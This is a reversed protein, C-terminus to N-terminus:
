SRVRGPCGCVAVVGAAAVATRRVPMVAAARRATTAEPLLVHFTAGSGRNNAAWMRGGHADVISRCIALGLGLGHPKSTVFPQFVDDIPETTIGTGNDSISIRVASGRAATTIALLRADAANDAM